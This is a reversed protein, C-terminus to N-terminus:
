AADNNAGSVVAELLWLNFKVVPIAKLKASFMQIPKGKLKMVTIQVTAGESTLLQDPTLVCNIPNNINEEASGGV